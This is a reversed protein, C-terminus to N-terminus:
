FQDLVSLSRQWGVSNNFFTRRHSLIVLPCVPSTLADRPSNRATASTPCNIKVLRNDIIIYHARLLARQIEIYRAKNKHCTEGTSHNLLSSVIAVPLTALVRFFATPRPPDIIEHRVHGTKVSTQITLPFCRTIKKENSKARALQKTGSTIRHSQSFDTGHTRCTLAGLHFTERSARRTCTNLRWLSM